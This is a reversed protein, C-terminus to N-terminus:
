VIIGRGAIGMKIKRNVEQLVQQQQKQSEGKQVKKYCIFLTILVGTDEKPPPSYFWPMSQIYKEKKEEEEEEDIPLVKQQQKKRLLFYLLILILIIGCVILFVLIAIVICEDDNTKKEVVEHGPEEPEVGGSEEQHVGDAYVSSPVTNYKTGDPTKVTFLNNYVFLNLRRLTQNYKSGALIVRFSVIISGRSINCSAFQEEELNLNERTSNCIEKRADEESAYLNMAKDFDEIFKFKM